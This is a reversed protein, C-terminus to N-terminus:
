LGIDPWVKCVMEACEKFAAKTEARMRNWSGAKIKKMEQGFEGYFESGTTWAVKRLLFGLKESEDALGDEALYEILQEFPSPKNDM